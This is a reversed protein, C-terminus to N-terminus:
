RPERRPLGGPGAPAAVRAAENADSADSGAGSGGKSRTPNKATTSNTGREPQRMDINGRFHAGEAIGVVPAAIDGEVSGNSRIEIREIATIDGAIKGVVVVSKASVRANIKGGSGITLEHQRLDITGEVTGDIRLDESGTLEGKIVVSQGINPVSSSAPPTSHAVDARAETQVRDESPSSSGASQEATDAEDLRKWM